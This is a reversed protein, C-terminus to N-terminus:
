AEFQGRRFKPQEYNTTSPDSRYAHKELGTFSMGQSTVDGVSEGLNKFAQVNAAAFAAAQAYLDAEGPAEEGGVGLHPYAWRLERVTNRVVFHTCAQVAADSMVPVSFGEAALAMNLVGSVRDMVGEVDAATPVTATSFGDAGDLLHRVLAEVAALSGYSSAALM